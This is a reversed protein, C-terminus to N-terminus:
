RVPNSCLLLHFAKAKNWWGSEEPTVGPGWKSRPVIWLAPKSLARFPKPSPYKFSRKGRYWGERAICGTPYDRWCAQSAIWDCWTALAFLAHCPSGEEEAVNRPQQRLGCSRRIGGSATAWNTPLSDQKQWPQVRAARSSGGQLPRGKEKM